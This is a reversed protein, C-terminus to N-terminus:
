KVPSIFGVYFCFKLAQVPLLCNLVIRKVLQEKVRSGCRWRGLMGLLSLLFSSCMCIFKCPSRVGVPDKLSTQSGKKVVPKRPTKTRRSM